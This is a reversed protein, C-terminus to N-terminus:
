LERVRPDMNKASANGYLSAGCIPLHIDLMQYNTLRGPGKHVRAQICRITLKKRRRHIGTISCPSTIASHRIPGSLAGSPM